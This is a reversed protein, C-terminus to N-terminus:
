AKSHREEAGTGLVTGLIFQINHWQVTNSTQLMLPTSKKCGKFM